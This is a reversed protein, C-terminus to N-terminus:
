DYWKRCIYVFTHDEEEVGRLQEEWADNGTVAVEESLVVDSAESIADIFARGGANVQGELGAGGAGGAHGEAVVTCSEESTPAGMPTVSGGSSRGSSGSSSGGTAVKECEQDDGDAVAAAAVDTAGYIRQHNRATDKESRITMYSVSVDWDLDEEDALWLLRSAPDGLTILLYVGGPKLVRCACRLMAELNQQYSENCAICDFTAKDVVADFSNSPYEKDGLNCVDAVKYCVNGFHPTAADRVLAEMQEVVVPSFDVNVLPGTHGDACWEQALLSNGCGLQLVSADRAVHRALLGKLHVYEFLWDFKRADEEDEAHREDWYQVGEGYGPRDKDNGEPTPPAILDPLEDDVSMGLYRRPKANHYGGDDARPQEQPLNEDTTAIAAVAPTEAHRMFSAM